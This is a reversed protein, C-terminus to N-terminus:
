KENIREGTKIKDTLYCTLIFNRLNTKAVVVFYKGGKLNTFYKYFLFVKPDHKSKRVQDPNELVETIKSLHTNVDPHYEIIHNKREYTLEILKDIKSKFRMKSAFIIMIIKYLLFNIVKYQSFALIYM